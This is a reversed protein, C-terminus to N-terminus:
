TTVLKVVVEVHYTQPFMDVAIAKEVAYKRDAVITKLDRALTTPNCSVYIIKKAGSTPLYQVVKPHLGGRPPDVVITDYPISGQTQASSRIWKEAAIAEFTANRVTNLRANVRAQDIAESVIEVGHVVKAEPALCIGISGTGCFLDLVREEAGLSAYERVTEYLKEAGLTNTQFFSFPSIAFHFERGGVTLREEIEKGGRLHRVSEPIVADSASDNIVWYVSHIQPLAALLPIWFTGGDERMPTATVLIAMIQGTHKGKRLVVHRWFGQKNTADFSPLNSARAFDTIREIIPLFDEDAIFCPPVQVYEDFRGKQHLGLVLSDGSGGFSLEMKNRYNWAEPSPVIDELTIGLPTLIEQTYGLKFKLQDEYSVHQFSCGGCIGFSPCRPVIREPAPEVINGVRAETIGKHKRWAGIEVTEGPLAGDVFLTRGEGDHAICKGPYVLKEMRLPM